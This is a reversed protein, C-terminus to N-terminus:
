AGRGKGKVPEAPVGVATCNAPLSRIVVAGAGVITWEGVSVSEILASGTGIQCGEEIRVNGSISALPAIHAFDGLSCDHSVNAGRNVFVFQGVNVNTSVIAGAATIAGREFRASRAIVASPHALVPFGAVHSAITAIIQRKVAPKGVGLAVHLNRGERQLWDSGGLVSLGNVSTGALGPGDDVFGLLEWKRGDEILDLVLQAVERGHGGAGFVVLANM